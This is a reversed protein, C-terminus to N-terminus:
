SSSRQRATERPKGGDETALRMEQQEAYEQTYPVTHSRSHARVRRGSPSCRRPVPTAKALISLM